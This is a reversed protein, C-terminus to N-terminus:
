FHYESVREFIVNQFMFTAVGDVSLYLFLLLKDM